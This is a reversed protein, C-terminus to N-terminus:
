EDLPLYVREDVQLQEARGAAAFEQFQAWAVNVGGARDPQAMRRIMFERVPSRRPFEVEPRLGLGDQFGEHKARGSCVQERRARGFRLPGRLGGRVSPGILLGRWPLRFPSGPIAAGGSGVAAGDLPSAAGRLNGRPRRVSEPVVGSRENPPLVASTVIVVAVIAAEVLTFRRRDARGAM